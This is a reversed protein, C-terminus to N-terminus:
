VELEGVDEQCLFLNVRAKLPMNNDTGTHQNCVFSLDYYKFETSFLNRDFYNHITYFVSKILIYM